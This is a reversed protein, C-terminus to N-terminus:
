QYRFIHRLGIHIDLNFKRTAKGGAADTLQVTIDYEGCLTPTGTISGSSSLSLGSPLASGPYLSWSYASKGGAAKLRLSYKQGVTGDPLQLPTQIFLEPYVKITLTKLATNGLHDTVSIMFSYSGSQIPRGAICAETGENSSMTLGDPLKGGSKIWTYPGTGGSVSLALSYEVNVEAAGPAPSSLQPLAAIVITISCSASLNNSDKVTVTFKYVGARTPKGAIAASLSDQSTKLALGAPLSSGNDAKWSWKYPANGGSVTLTQPPYEIKV